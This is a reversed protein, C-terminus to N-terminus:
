KRIERGISRALNEGVRQLTSRQEIRVSGVQLRSVDGTARMLSIAEQAGFVRELEEQLGGAVDHREAFPFGTLALRDIHVVVRKM